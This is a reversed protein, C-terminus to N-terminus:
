RYLKIEERPNLVKTEGPRLEIIVQGRTNGARKVSALRYYGPELGKIEFEGRDNTKATGKVEGRPNLAQVDLSAQPRDGELM